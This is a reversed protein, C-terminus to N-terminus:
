PTRSLRFGGDFLSGYPYFSSRNAVRCFVAHNYWNGGRLVRNSGTTPGTPNSSPSSSYYSSSYWDWCWELLNGSMDYLGLQNPLKTGVPHSTSGSNASYWAYNTLDSTEHCGSYRFNDGHHVGGRAAYEWEAETPLRYGNASWNSIAANWTANSSTPVAGWYAPDTSDNITYVPTLGEAMSRLNCYVLIRYWSVNYAPYSDGLGYSTSWSRAPMYETWEKQTVLYKGMYFSNLTVSHVPREDTSGESFSDGMQFTGGQVFVFGAPTTGDTVTIDLDRTAVAKGDSVTVTIKYIGATQPATWTVSNGSGIIPGGTTDWTYTLADGDADTAVCNITANGGAQVTSPNATLSSIVPASNKPETTSDDSCSWFVLGTLVMALLLVILKKM